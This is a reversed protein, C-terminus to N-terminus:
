SRKKSKGKSAASHSTDGFNRDGMQGGGYYGQHSQGGVGGPEQEDQNRYGGGGSQGAGLSGGFSGDRESAERPDPDRGRTDPASKRDDRDNAM